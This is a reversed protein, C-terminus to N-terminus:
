AVQIQSADRGHWQFSMNFEMDGKRNEDCEAEQCSEASNIMKKKQFYKEIKAETTDCEPKGRAENAKRGIDRKNERERSGFELHQHNMPKIWGENKKISQGLHSRGWSQPKLIM